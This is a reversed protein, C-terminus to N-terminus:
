CGHLSVGGLTGIVWYPSCVGPALSALVALKLNLSVGQREPILCLPVSM